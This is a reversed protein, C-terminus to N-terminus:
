DQGLLSPKCAMIVVPIWWLREGAMHRSLLFATVTWSGRLGASLEVAELNGSINLIWLVTMKKRSLGWSVGLIPFATLRIKTERLSFCDQEKVAM